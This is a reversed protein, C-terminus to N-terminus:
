PSTADSGSLRPSRSPTPLSLPLGPRDSMKARSPSEDTAAKSEFDELAQSGLNFAATAARAVRSVLEEQLRDRIQGEDSSVSVSGPSNSQGPCPQLHSSEDPPRLVLMPSDNQACGADPSVVEVVYERSTQRRRSGTAAAVAPAHGRASAPAVLDQEEEHRINQWWVVPPRGRPTEPVEGRQSYRATMAGSTVEQFVRTLDLKLPLLDKPQVSPSPRKEGGADSGWGSGSGSSGSEPSSNAQGGARPSAEAATVQALQVTPGASAKAVPRRAAWPAVAGGPGLRRGLPRKGTGTASAPAPIVTAAAGIRLRQSTQQQQQRKLGDRKQLQHQVRQQLQDQEQARQKARQATASPEGVPRTSQPPKQAQRWRPVPRTRQPSVKESKESRMAPRQLRTPSTAPVPSAARQAPRPESSKALRATPAPSSRGSRFVPPSSPPSPRRKQGTSRPGTPNQAAKEPLLVRPPSGPRPFKGQSGGTRLVPKMRQADLGIGSSSSSSNVMPAPAQRGRIAGARRPERPEDTSAESMTSCIHKEQYAHMKDLSGVIGHELCLIIRELPEMSGSHARLKQMEADKEDLQQQLQPLEEWVKEAQEKFREMEARLDEEDDDVMSLSHRPGSGQAHASSSSCLRSGYQLTRLSEAKAHSSPDLMLLLVTRCAGQCGGLSEQLLHTLRSNRYPVHSCGSERAQIVKSLVKLSRLATQAEKTEASSAHCFSDESGGHTPSACPSPMSASRDCAALDVLTLRGVLHKEESGPKTGTLRFTMVLHSRQSVARRRWGSSLWSSLVEGVAADETRVSRWVAVAEAAAAAAGGGLSLRRAGVSHSSCALPEVRAAANGVELLDRIQDGALEFMQLSAEISAFSDELL